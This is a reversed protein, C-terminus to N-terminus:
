CGLTLVSLESYTCRMAIATPLLTTDKGLVELLRHFRIPHEQIHGRIANLLRLTLNEPLSTLVDDFTNATIVDASLVAKALTLPDPVAAALDDYNNVYSSLEAQLEM